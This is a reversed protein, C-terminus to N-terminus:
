PILYLTYTDESTSGTPRTFRLKTCATTIYMQYVTTNDAQIIKYSLTNDQSDLLDVRINKWTVGSLTKMKAKVIAPATIPSDLAVDDTPTANDITVTKEITDPTYAPDDAYKVTLTVDGSASATDRQIRIKDIEGNIKYSYDTNSKVVAIDLENFRLNWNNSSVIGDPADIRLTMDHMPPIPTGFLLNVSATSGSTLTATISKEAITARQFVLDANKFLVRM